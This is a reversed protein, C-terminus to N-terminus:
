AGTNNSAELDPQGIVRARTKKQFLRLQFLRVNRESSYTQKM